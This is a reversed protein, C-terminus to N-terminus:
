LWQCTNLDAVQWSMAAKEATVVAGKVPEVGLISDPALDATELFSEVIEPTPPVVPLGDSWGRDFYTEIAEFADAVRIQESVLSSYIM